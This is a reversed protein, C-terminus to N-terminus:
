YSEPNENRFIKIYLDVKDWIYNSIMIQTFKNHSKNMFIENILIYRLDITDNKIIKKTKSTINTIEFTDNISSNPIFVQISDTNKHTNSELDNKNHFIGTFLLNLTSLQKKQTNVLSAINNIFGIFIFIEEFTWNQFYINAVFDIQRLKLIM